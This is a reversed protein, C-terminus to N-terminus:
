YKLLNPKKPKDYPPMCKGEPVCTEYRLNTTAHANWGVTNLRQGLSIFFHPLGRGKNPYGFIGFLGSAFFVLSKNGLTFHDLITCPM